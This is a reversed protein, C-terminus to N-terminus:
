GMLMSAGGFVAVGLWTALLVNRNLRLLVFATAGIGLLRAALPMEAMGPNGPLVVLKVVLAALLAYAIGSALRFGLDNEHLRGAWFVGLLRCIYTILAGALVMQLAASM